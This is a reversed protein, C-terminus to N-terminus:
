TIDYPDYLSGLEEPVWKPTNETFPTILFLM